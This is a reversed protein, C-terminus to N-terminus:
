PFIPATTSYTLMGDIQCFGPSGPIGSSFSNFGIYQGDVPPATLNQNHASLTGQCQGVPHHYGFNTIRVPFISYTDLDIFWPASTPTLIFGCTWIYLGGGSSFTASTITGSFQGPPLRSPRM